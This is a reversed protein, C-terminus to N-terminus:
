RVASPAPAPPEVIANLGRLDIEDNVGEIEVPEMLEHRMRQWRLLREFAHARALQDRMANHFRGDSVADIIEMRHVDVARVDTVDEGVVDDVPQESM